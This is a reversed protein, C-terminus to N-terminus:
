SDGELEGNLDKSVVYTSHLKDHLCQKKKDFLVWVFLFPLLVYCFLKTFNRAVSHQFSLKYGFKNVVRIGMLYKGWTGQKETAEMVACYVCWLVFTMERMWNRQKIFVARPGINDGRNLYNSWTVNFGFFLYGVAFVLIVIPV